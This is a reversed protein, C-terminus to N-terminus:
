ESSISSIKERLIKRNNIVAEIAKMFRPKNQPDCKIAIFNAYNTKVRLITADAYENRLTRIGEILSNVQIEEIERVVDLNEIKHFMNLTWEM